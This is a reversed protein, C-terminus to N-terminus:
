SVLPEGQRLDPLLQTDATLTHVCCQLAHGAQTCRRRDGAAAAFSVNDRGPNQGFFNVLDEAQYAHPLTGISGEALTQLRASQCGPEILRFQSALGAYTDPADSVILPAARIRV